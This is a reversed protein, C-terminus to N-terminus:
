NKQTQTNTLQLYACQLYKINIPDIVTDHSAYSQSSAKLRYEHLHDVYFLTSMFEVPKKLNQTVINTYSYLISLLFFFFSFHSHLFSFCLTHPYISINRLIREQENDMRQYNSLNVRHSFWNVNSGENPMTACIFVQM